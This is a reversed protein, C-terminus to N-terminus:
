LSKDKKALRIYFILKKYVNAIAFFDVILGNTLDISLIIM